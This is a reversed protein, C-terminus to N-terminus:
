YTQRGCFNQRRNGCVIDGVVIDKQLIMQVQGGRVVKVMIDENIRNLAEFAKASKGEMIVTIVVSLFIAVFIGVCEIFGSGWRDRRPHYQRDACDGGGHDAYHDDAGGCGTCDTEWPILAKGEYLQEEWLCACKGGGASRKIRLSRRGWAGKANRQGSEMFAKM